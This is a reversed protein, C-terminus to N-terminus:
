PLLLANQVRFPHFDHQLRQHLHCQCQSHLHFHGPLPLDTGVAQNSIKPNTRTKLIGQKQKAANYPSCHSISYFPEYTHRSNKRDQRQSVSINSSM